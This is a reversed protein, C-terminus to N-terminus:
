FSAITLAARERAMRRTSVNGLGVFYFRVHFAFLNNLLQRAELHGLFFPLRSSSFEM